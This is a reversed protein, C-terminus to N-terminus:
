SRGLGDYELWRLLFMFIMDRDIVGIRSKIGM